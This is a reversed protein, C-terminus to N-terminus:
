GRRIVIGADFVGDVVDDIVGVNTGDIGVITKSVIVVHIDISIIVVGAVVVGSTIGDSIGCIIGNDVDTGIVVFTIVSAALVVGVAVL